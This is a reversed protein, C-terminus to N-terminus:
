RARHVLLKLNVMCRRYFMLCMETPALRVYRISHKLVILMTEMKHKLGAKTVLRNGRGFNGGSLIDSLVYSQMRRDKDALPLPFDVMGLKDVLITGFAKFAELLGVNRLIEELRARDIENAYHHLMVAWDCLHRLGIGEHIFHFFLHIFIYAANLTPNMVPVQEGGIMVYAPNSESLAQEWYTRHKGCGFNILYTHLEYLTSGHTFVVEKEALSKPLEVGWHTLLMDAAQRYDKVLFDIDGPMRVLPEPYLAALTQGKVIICEANAVAMLRSFEAVETNMALNRRKIKELHAYANFVTQQEMSVEKKILTDIVLGAVAQKKAMVILQCAESPGIPERFPTGWLAEQLLFFLKDALMM